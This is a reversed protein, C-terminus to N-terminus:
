QFSKLEVLTLPKGLIKRDRDIIFMTPTAYVNYDMVVTCSWKKLSSLNIWHEIGMEVVKDEWNKELDDLSIAIIEFSTSDLSKQWNLIDPIMKNCHPCWSAWFLILNKNKLVEHLRVPHGKVDNLTFDPVIAGIKMKQQLLKRELTSIDDTQCTTGSYNDAIYTILNDMHLKEFGNVLYELIFEYIKENQNTRSLIIDIATKFEQEQQERSLGRQVYSMLYKFVKKTYIDSNMLTEDSFDINNFYKSKFQEDRQQRNLNGDWFPEQYMKILKTAYLNPHQQTAQKILEARKKQLQNFRNVSKETNKVDNKEQFYDLEKQTLNLQDRLTKEKQKFNYWVQNENSQIVKLSDELYKFDTKLSIDENNYIFDLQQPPENMVQAYTTQGLIIRYVGNTNNASFHFQVSGNISQVTDTPIFKDGRIKGLIIQNNPLNTIQVTLNHQQAFLNFNFLLYIFLTIFVIIRIM